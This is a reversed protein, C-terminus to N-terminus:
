FLISQFRTKILDFPHMIGSVYTAVFSCIGCKLCYFNDLIENRNM